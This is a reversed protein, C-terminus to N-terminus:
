EEAFGNAAVGPKGVSWIEKEDEEEDKSLGLGGGGGEADKRDRAQTGLKLAVRKFYDQMSRKTGTPLDKGPGKLYAELVSSDEEAVSFLELFAAEAALKIPIIPERIVAFVPPILTQLNPKTYEPKKRAVTRIIVLAIRRVDIPIGPQISTSITKLTEQLTDSECTYNELILLKGMALLSHEQIVPNSSTAGQRLVAYTELSFPQMLSSPSDVLIANLALISSNNPPAALARSKVLAIASPSPLVKILAGLLQANTVAMSDDQEGQQVDILGLILEKSAENMNSGAKDVVEHLGKVMANRVGSDKTKSGTVLEPFM